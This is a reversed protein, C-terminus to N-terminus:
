GQRGENKVRKSPSLAGKKCDEAEYHQAGIIDIEEYRGRYQTMWYTSEYLKLYANVAASSIGITLAIQLPFFDKRKLFSVRSFQQIYRETAHLSHHTDRAVDLPEKGQLWQKVIVAKHSVGPGIDKQQGRTPVIIGQDQRLAKIDRRVTSVHCTLIQALDEQSLLGGQERAEETIRLIRQQRLVASSRSPVVHDDSHLLSLVVTQLQCEAIPKGAGEGAAVCEYRIQGDRLPRDSPDSFYVEQIMDVLVNSEWPTLGAGQMAMNALRNDQTKLRLRRDQEKQRDESSIIM